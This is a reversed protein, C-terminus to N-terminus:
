FNEQKKLFKNLIVRAEEIALGKNAKPKSAKVGLILRAENKAKVSLTPLLNIIQQELATM